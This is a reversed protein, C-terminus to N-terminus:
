ENDDNNLFGDVVSRLKKGAWRSIGKKVAKAPADKEEISGELGLDRTPNEVVYGCEKAYSFINKLIGEILGRDGTYGDAIEYIDAATIKGTYRKGYAPILYGDICKDIDELYKKSVKKASKANSNGGCVQDYWELIVKSFRTKGKAPSMSWRALRALGGFMLPIAQIVICIVSFIVMVVRIAVSVASEGGSSFIIGAIAMAISVIRICFRFIKFAKKYKKLTRTNANNSCIFVIVFAIILAAYIGVLIYLTIKGGLSMGNIISWINYAAYLLTFVLSFVMSFFNLRRSIVARNNYINVILSRLDFVDKALVTVEKTSISHTVKRVDEQEEEYDEKLQREAM